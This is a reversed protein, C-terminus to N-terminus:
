PLSRRVERLWADFAGYVDGVQDAADAGLSALGDVRVRMADCRSPPRVMPAAGTRTDGEGAVEGSPTSPRSYRVAAALLEAAGTPAGSKWAIYGRYFHAEVSSNHSGIVADFLGRARDLDGQALAIEGLSLLHGTEERNISAAREFEAAARKPQLTWEEGICFYLTGLQAHARASTPDIAILRTWASEAAAFNGLDLEMNGLYYLADLHTPELALARRYEAAARAPRGAIRQATAARYSEWFQRLRAREGPSVSASDVASTTPVPDRKLVTVAGFLVAVVGGFVVMRKM